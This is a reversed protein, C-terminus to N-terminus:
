LTINFNFKFLINVVRRFTVDHLRTYINLTEFFKRGRTELYVRFVSAAMEDSVNTFQCKSGLLCCFDEMKSVLIEAIITTRLFRRKESSVNFIKYNTWNTEDRQTYTWPIRRCDPWTDKDRCCTPMHVASVILAPTKLCKCKLPRMLAFFKTASLMIKGKKINEM